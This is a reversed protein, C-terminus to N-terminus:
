VHYILGKCVSEGKFKTLLKTHPRAKPGVVILYECMQGENMKITKVKIQLGKLYQTFHNQYFSEIQNELAVDQIRREM